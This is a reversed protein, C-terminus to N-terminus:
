RVRRASIKGGGNMTSVAFSAKAILYYTTTSSVRVRITPVALVNASGTTFTLNFLVYDPDSPLANNTSSIGAGLSSITTSGAASFGVGGFLDWDGATLSISTITKDTGTVLAVSGSGASATITEGINGTTADASGDCGVIGTGALSLAITGAVYVKFYTSATSADIKTTGSGWKILNADTLIIHRGATIDTSASTTLAGANWTGATITGVTAIDSGVLKSAAISGALMANTVVSPAITTVFSGTGTGTVNGTLTITQDGTNTGSLNSASVTGTLSTNGTVALTGAISTNGSAATVSFKNTNIAFNGTANLGAACTVNQSSDISLALTSNTSLGVSNASRLYLGNTPATGGTPIFTTATASASGTIAGTVALTSNLTATGTVTLTSSASITTFSGAAPTVGGIVTSNITSASGITVGSFTGGTVTKGTFTLATPISITPDGSVGNGNTLTIENATGTITRATFASASSAIVLGTNSGFSALATRTLQPGLGSGGSHDHGSAGSAFAEIQNFENNFISSLNAQQGSAIQSASQRTYSSAM